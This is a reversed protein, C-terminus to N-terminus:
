DLYNESFTEIKNEVEKLGEIRVNNSLIMTEIKGFANLFDIIRKEFSTHIQNIKYQKQIAKSYIDLKLEQNIKEPELSPYETSIHRKFAENLKPNQAIIQWISSYVKMFDELMESTEPHLMNEVFYILPNKRNGKYDLQGERAVRDLIEVAELRLFDVPKEPNEREIKASILNTLWPLKEGLEYGGMPLDFDSYFLRTVEFAFAEEIIEMAPNFAVEEAQRAMEDKNLEVENLDLIKTPSAQSGVAKLYKERLISNQVIYMHTLEHAIIARFQNENRGDLANGGETDKLSNYYEPFKVLLKGVVSKGRDKYYNTIETKLSNSLSQPVNNTWVIKKGPKVVGTDSREELNVRQTSIRLDEERELFKLSDMFDWREKLDSNNKCFRFLTFFIARQFTILGEERELVEDFRSPLGWWIPAQPTTKPGLAKCEERVEEFYSECSDAIIRSVDWCERVFKENPIENSAM